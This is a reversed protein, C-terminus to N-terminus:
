RLDQNIFQCACTTYNLLMLLLITRLLEPRFEGQPVMFNRNVFRRSQQLKDTFLEGEEKNYLLEKRARVQM